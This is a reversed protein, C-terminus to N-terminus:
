MGDKQSCWKKFTKFDVNLRRSAERASIENRKWQWYIKEFAKPIKLSRRGQRKYVDILEVLAAGYDTVSITMGNKNTLTYLFATQGNGATGFETETLTGM